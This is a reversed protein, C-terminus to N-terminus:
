RAVKPQWAGRGSGRQQLDEAQAEELRRRQAEQERARCQECRGTPVGSRTYEVPRGCVRKHRPDSTAHQFGCFVPRGTYTTRTEVLETPEVVFRDDV